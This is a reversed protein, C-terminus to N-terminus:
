VGNTENLILKTGLDTAIVEGSNASDWCHDAVVDELAGSLSSLRGFSSCELALGHKLSVSGTMVRQTAMITAATSGCRRSITSPLHRRSASPTPIALCSRTRTQRPPNATRRWVLQHPRACFRFRRQHFSDSEPRVFRSVDESAISAEGATATNRAVPHRLPASPPPTAHQSLRCMSPLVLLCAMVALLRRMPIRLPM